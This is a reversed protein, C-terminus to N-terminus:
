EFTVNSASEEYIMFNGDEASKVEKGFLNLNKIVVGDVTHESDFGMIRSGRETGELFTVNEITVNRINGRETTTSWNNNKVICIDILYPLDCDGSGVEEHEVVIDRFVIGDLLADDANHVSIVPKHFNNLVTIDEFVINTITANEKNGKNTEFGVEMSQALDTWLQMNSFTINDSNKDYNKVVLSDDWSRIFGNKVEYNQCSQLSIGDGNPRSSIIRIGDIVGNTSNYGQCVWANSNLVIVDEITVGDCYDFKLPVNASTGKWGEYKSGDLIGHGKVTVDSVFNGVITSHAVCGGALYVTQGSRLSISDIDWEGPGLYIVNPDEPDPADEEIAYAFIHVAREPTDNFQLTYADPTDVKFTVTHAEADVVPEIGYSLPSIKVNEIDINPVTVQIEVTGEFDFYTVPTRSQPPYYSSVWSRTHNVNTDYVYCDQGNVKVQTDVCHLLSMDRNNEGTNVLDEETADRLSLPGEYLIVKSEEMIRQEEKAALGEKLAPIASVAAAIFVLMLVYQLIVKGKKM